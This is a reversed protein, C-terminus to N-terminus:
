SSIGQRTPLCAQFTSQHCALTTHHCALITHYYSRYSIIIGTHTDRDHIFIPERPQPHQLECGCRCSAHQCGDNDTTHRTRRNVIDRGNGRIQSNEVEGESDIDRFISM